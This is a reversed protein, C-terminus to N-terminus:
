KILGVKRRIDEDRLGIEQGIYDDAQPGCMWLLAKAPWDPPIHDTWALESVPNIGSASIDRQMQTAVTGPSLGMARIGNQHEEHHLLTTMMAAGAKSACYASWGEYPKHAAGSSVTLVTGGGRQKMAPVIFKMAYFVAKLNIDIAKSWADSDADVLPSIPDLMGANNILVDIVGFHDTAANIAAEFASADSIDCPFAAANAGIEDSIQHLADGSRAILAVKAGADAFVQASAAGIGRSAGTILVTKGAINTM